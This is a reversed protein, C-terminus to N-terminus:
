LFVFDRRMRMARVAKEEDSLANWKISVAKAIEAISPKENGSAILEAKTSERHANNYLMYASLKKPYAMVVVVTTVEYRTSVPPPHELSALHPTHTEGNSPTQSLKNFNFSM